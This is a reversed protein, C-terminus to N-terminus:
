SESAQWKGSGGSAIPCWPIKGIGLVIIARIADIFLGSDAAIHFQESMGSVVAWTYYM